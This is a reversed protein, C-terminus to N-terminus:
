SRSRGQRDCYARIRQKRLLNLQSEFDNDLDGRILV